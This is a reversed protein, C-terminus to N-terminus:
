QWLHNWVRYFELPSETKWCHLMFMLDQASVGSDSQDTIFRAESDTRNTSLNHYHNFCRHHYTSNDVLGGTSQVAGIAITPRSGSQFVSQWVSGARLGEIDHITSSGTAVVRSSCVCGRAIYPRHHIFNFYPQPTSYAGQQFGNIAFINSNPVHFGEPPIPSHILTCDTIDHTGSAALPEFDWRLQTALNSIQGAGKLWEFNNSGTHTNSVINRGTGDWISLRATSSASKVFAGIGFFGKELSGRLEDPFEGANLVQQGLRRAISDVTIRCVNNSQEGIGSTTKLYNTPSTFGGWYAPRHSAGNVGFPWIEFKPDELLNIRRTTGLSEWMNRVIQSILDSQFAPNSPEWLIAM